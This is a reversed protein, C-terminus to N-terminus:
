ANGSGMPTKGRTRQVSVPATFELSGAVKRLYDPSFQSYTSRTVNPNTHGMYQAVEEIPVGNEVM